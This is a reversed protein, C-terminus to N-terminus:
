SGFQQLIYEPPVVYHLIFGPIVVTEDRIRRSLGEAIEARKRYFNEVVGVASEASDWKGPCKEVAQQL